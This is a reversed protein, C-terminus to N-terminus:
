LSVHTDFWKDFLTGAGYNVNFKHHHIWHESGQYQTGMHATVSNHLLVFAWLFVIPRSFTFCQLPMLLTGTNVILQEALSCYFTAFPPPEKFYHHDKHWRYLYPHHMLRHTFYFWAETYFFLAPVHLLEGLQFDPFAHYDMYVSFLVISLLINRYHTLYVDKLFDFHYQFDGKYFTEWKYHQFPFYVFLVFAYLFLDYM